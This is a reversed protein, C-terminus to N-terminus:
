GVILILRCAARLLQLFKYATLKKVYRDIDIVNILNTFNKSDLASLLEKIASKTTDKDM